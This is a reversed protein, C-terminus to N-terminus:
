WEVCYTPWISTDPVIRSDSYPVAVLLYIMGRLIKLVRIAKIHIYSVPM